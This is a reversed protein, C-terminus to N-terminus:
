NGKSNVGATSPTAIASSVFSSTAVAACLNKLVGPSFLKTNDFRSFAGSNFDVKVVIRQKAGVSVQM